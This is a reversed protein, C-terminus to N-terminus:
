EFKVAETGFLEADEVAAEAALAIALLTFAICAFTRWAASIPTLLWTQPDKTRAIKKRTFHRSGRKNENQEVKSLFHRVVCFTEGRHGFLELLLVRTPPSGYLRDNNKTRSVSRQLQMQKCFSTVNRSRKQLVHSLGTALQACQRKSLVLAAARAM